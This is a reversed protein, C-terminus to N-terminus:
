NLPPIEVGQLGKVMVKRGQVEVWKATAREEYPHEGWVDRRMKSLQKAFKQMHVPIRSMAKMADRYAEYLTRTPLFHEQFGGNTHVVLHEKVWYLVSDNELRYEELSAKIKASATFGKQTVLRKYGALALNLVGPLEARIKKSLHPDYNAMGKEILQNFPVILLRRYFGHSNDSSTPLENCTLLLKASNSIQYPAERPLRVIIKGGTVLTKFTQNDSLAKPSTEESINFLKKDLQSLNYHEDVKALNITSFNADGALGQMADLFTSKGNSGDGTMVLAKQAWCDDNSLSYGMFETLVAQLDTDAGTVLELMREFVPARATPDYGYPLVHRFAIERDHPRFAMTDIDLYGNLFNMKRRLSTEWWDVDILNDIEVRQRWERVTDMKPTPDFKKRAFSELEAAKMEVYHNVKWVYCHRSAGLIKFHYDRAFYKILDEHNPVSKPKGKGDLTIIHFGTAETHIHGDGRLHIPSQIKKWHVCETCKGWLNQISECTRPGAAELSQTIKRETTEYSYGQHGKSMEHSREGGTAGQGDLRATISLAAYWTPEDISNPSEHCHKLFNCGALVASPDNTPYKQQVRRDVQEGPKVIPVGSIAELHFNLSKGVQRLLTAFRKPKDVKRNETGPLRLIRRADFISVDVDGPLGQLRLADELRGCVARYHVRNNDFFSKETIEYDLGILYHLGNGSLVVGPDEASIGLAECVPALYREHEEVKIKDIDFAIASMSKFERKGEGCNAVTYFLNWHESVPIQKLIEQHRALVEAVTKLEIDVPFLQDKSKIEGTKRDVYPRLGLIQIM